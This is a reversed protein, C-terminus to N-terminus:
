FKKTGTEECGSRVWYKIDNNVTVKM